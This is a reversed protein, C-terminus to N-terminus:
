SVPVLKLAVLTIAPFFAIVLLGALLVLVYVWFVKVTDGMNAIEGEYDRRILPNYVIKDNLNQTFVGSWIEPVIATVTGAATIIADAM